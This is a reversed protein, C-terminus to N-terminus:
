GDWHAKWADLFRDVISGHGSHAAIHLATTDRLDATGQYHGAEDAGNLSFPSYGRELLLEVVATNGTKAAIHLPADPPGVGSRPGSAGASELLDSLRDLDGIAAAENIDVGPKLAALQEVLRTEGALLASLIASCGSQPDYFDLLEPDSRAYALTGAHDDLLNAHLERINTHTAATAAGRSELLPRVSEDAFGWPTTGYRDALNPDAGADLLREIIPRWQEARQFDNYRTAACANLLGSDHQDRQETPVGRELLSLVMETAGWWCPGGIGDYPNAGADMLVHATATSGSSGFAGPLYLCGMNWLTRANVLAPDDALFAAVRQTQGWQCAFLFAEAQVTNRTRWARGPTANPLKTGMRTEISKALVEHGGARAVDVVTSGAHDTSTADFVNCPDALVLQEAAWDWATDGQDWTLLHRGDILVDVLAERDTWGDPCLALATERQGNKCAIRFAKRTPDDAAPLRRRVGDIDGLGAATELDTAPGLYAAIQDAGIELARELPTQPPEGAKRDVPAGTAILERVMAARSWWVAIDLLSADPWSEVNATERVLNTDASILSRLRGADGAQIAQLGDSFAISAM